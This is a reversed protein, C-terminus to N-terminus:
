VPIYYMRCLRFTLNSPICDQYRLTKVSKLNFMNERLPFQTMNLYNEAKTIKHEIGGRQLRKSQCTICEGYAFLWLPLRLSLQKRNEFEECNYVQYHKRALNNFNSKLFHFNLISKQQKKYFLRQPYPNNKITTESFTFTKFAIKQM